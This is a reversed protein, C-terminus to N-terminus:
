CSLAGKMASETQRETQTERDRDRDTKGTREWRGKRCSERGEGAGKEGGGEGECSKFLGLTCDQREREQRTVKPM